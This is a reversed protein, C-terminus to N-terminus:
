REGKYENTLRNIKAAIGGIVFLDYLVAALAMFAIIWNMTSLPRYRGLDLFIAFLPAIAPLGSIMNDLNHVRIDGVGGHSIPHGQAVLYLLFCFAVISFLLMVRDSTTANFSQPTADPAYWFLFSLILTIILVSIARGVIDAFM